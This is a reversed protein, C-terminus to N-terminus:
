RERQPQPPGNSVGPRTFRYIMAQDKREFGAEVYLARAPVNAETVWLRLEGYGLAAAARVGFRVLARGLGHRRATPHVVIDLIVARRPSQEAILLLGVLHGEPAVLAASAEDLFRGLRGDRIEGLLRADEEPTEAVLGEDPTGLFGVWDLAGLATTEITRIPRREIGAGFELPEPLPGTLPRDMAWRVIVSWGARAGLRGRLTEEDPGALGTLGVDLREATPPLGAVLAEMLRGARGPADAGPEAHVHGYARHPRHSLFGLAPAPGRIVWGPTAGTRLDHAAEEVWDPPLFEGRELLRRRVAHTLEVLETEPVSTAPEPASVTSM